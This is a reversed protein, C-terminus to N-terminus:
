MNADQQIQDPQQSAPTPEEKGERPQTPSYGDSWRMSDDIRLRQLGEPGEMAFDTDNYSRGMCSAGDDYDITNQRSVPRPSREMEDGESPSVGKSLTLPGTQSPHAQTPM